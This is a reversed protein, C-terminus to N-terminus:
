FTEVGPGERHRGFVITEAGRLCFIDSLSTGSTGWVERALSCLRDAMPFGVMVVLVGGNFELIALRGHLNEFNMM